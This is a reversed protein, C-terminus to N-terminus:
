EGCEAVYDGLRMRMVLVGFGCDALDVFTLSRWAPRVDQWLGYLFVFRGGMATLCSLGVCSAVPINAPWGSSLM